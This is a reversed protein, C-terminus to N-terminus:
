RWCHDTHALQGFGSRITADLTKLEASIWGCAFWAGAQSQRMGEFRHRAVVLDNMQGLVEQLKPAILRALVDNTSGTIPVIIRVPKTPTWEQASAGTAAALGLTALVLAAIQRRHFTPM